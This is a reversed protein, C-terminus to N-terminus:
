AATMCYILPVSIDFIKDSDSKNLSKEDGGSSITYLTYTQKHKLCLFIFKMGSSHRETRRETFSIM